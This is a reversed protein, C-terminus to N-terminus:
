RKTIFHYWGVIALVAGLVALIGWILQSM